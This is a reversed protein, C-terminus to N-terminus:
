GELNVKWEDDEKVMQFEGEQGEASTVGVTATDGDIKAEGVEAGELAALGAEADASAFAKEVGEECSEADEDEAAQQASAESLLGCMAGADQDQVAGFFDSAVEEPTADSPSDSGGCGAALLGLTLAAVLAALRMGM